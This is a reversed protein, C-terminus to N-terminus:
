WTSSTMPSPAYPTTQDTKGREGRQVVGRRGRESEGEAGGHVNGGLALDGDLADGGEVMGHETEAGEAFDLEEAVKM